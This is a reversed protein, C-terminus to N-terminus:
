VYLPLIVRHFDSNEGVAVGVVGGLAQDSEVQAHAARIAAQKTALTAQSSSACSSSSSSSTSTSTSSAASTNTTTVAVTESAAHVGNGAPIVTLCSVLIATAGLTVVKKRKRKM